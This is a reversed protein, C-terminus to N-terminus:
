DEGSSEKKGSRQEAGNRTYPRGCIPCFQFAQVKGQATFCTGEFNECYPCPMTQDM